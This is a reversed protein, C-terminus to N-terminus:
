EASSEANPRAMGAEGRMIFDQLAIAIHLVVLAILGFAAYAHANFLWSDYGPGRALDVAPHHRVPTTRAGFDSIGAWGLLPTLIAVLYLAGHVMRGGNRSPWRRRLRAQMRYVIRVVLLALACVGVLKHASFITDALKGSGLQTMVIGSVFLALLLLASIWHLAKGVKPLELPALVRARASAASDLTSLSM